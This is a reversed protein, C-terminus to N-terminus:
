EYYVFFLLVVWSVKLFYSCNADGCNELAQFRKFGELVDNNLRFKSFVSGADETRQESVPQFSSIVLCFM